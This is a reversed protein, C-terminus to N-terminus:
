GSIRAHEVVDLGARAILRARLPKPSVYRLAAALNAEGM